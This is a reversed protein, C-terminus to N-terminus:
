PKVFLSSFFELGAVRMQLSLSFRKFVLAKAREKERLSFSFLFFYFSAEFPKRKKNNHCCGSRQWLPRM